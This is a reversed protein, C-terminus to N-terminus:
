NMLTIHQNMGTRYRDNSEVIAISNEQNALISM